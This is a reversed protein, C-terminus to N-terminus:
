RRYASKRHSTAIMFIKKVSEDITYFFRWDGVRYRWTPPYWARLRKINPGFHPERSLQPYIYEQLKHELSVVRQRLLLRLDRSFRETEFVKYMQSSSGANQKLM